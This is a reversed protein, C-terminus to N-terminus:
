RGVGPLSGLRAALEAALRAPDVGDTAIELAAAARYGPLREAYLAELRALLDPATALLPRAARAAADDLRALQTAPSAALFVVRGAARMLERNRPDQAIGAGTAVVGSASAIVAELAAREHQRFGPEGERAFLEAISCATAAEIALDLDHAVVGLARALEPALRSKGAGPPGILFILM